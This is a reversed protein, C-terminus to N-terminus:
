GGKRVLKFVMVGSHIILPVQYFIDDYVLILEKSKSPLSLIKSKM